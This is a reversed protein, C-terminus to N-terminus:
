FLERCESYVTGGLADTRELCHAMDTMRGAVSFDYGEGKFVFAYRGPSFSFQANPPEVMVMQDNGRLPAVGFTFAKSRIAWQGDVETTTPSGSGTFKMERMVQAVIRISVTDPASSILDRRYVVFKIKGDPITVRSPNSIMASIAVRPDPVRMALPELEYLKGNNVAYVGYISPLPFDL